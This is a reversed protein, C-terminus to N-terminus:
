FCHPHQDGVADLEPYPLGPHDLELTEVADM